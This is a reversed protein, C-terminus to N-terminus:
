DEVWGHQKAFVLLRQRIETIQGGTVSPAVDILVDTIKQAFATPSIVDCLQDDQDDRRASVAAPASLITVAVAKAGRESQVAQYEVRTGLPVSDKSGEPLLAAHLFVDEGGDDPTIFGYGNTPNFRVVTGTSVADVELVSWGSELLAVCTSVM